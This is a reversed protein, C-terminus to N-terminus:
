ELGGVDGWGGEGGFERTLFGEKFRGDGGWGLGGQKSVHSLPASPHSPFGSQLLVQEFFFHGKELFFPEKWPFKSREPSM